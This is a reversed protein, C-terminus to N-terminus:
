AFSYAFTLTGFKRLVPVRALVSETSLSTPAIGAAAIGTTSGCRVVMLINRSEVVTIAVTTTVTITATAAVSTDRARDTDV